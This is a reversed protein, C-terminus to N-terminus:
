LKKFRIVRIAKIGCRTTLQYDVLVRIPFQGNQNQSLRFIGPDDIAVNSTDGIDTFHFYLAGDCVNPCGALSACEKVNIGTIVGEDELTRTNKQCACLAVLPFLMQLLPKM